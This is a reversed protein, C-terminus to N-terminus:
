YTLSLGFGLQKNNYTPMIVGSISEKNKFVHRRIWPQLKYALKTSLIGVGAGAIVDSLWHKNNSMRLFGTAGAVTYGIIGYAISVDRYEQFLFEAGMFATATHGSPFANLASRDPRERKTLTKGTSVMTQLLVVATGLIITRDKFNHKGKIGIANMSYVAAFSLYQLYNDVQTNDTFRNNLREQIDFDFDRLKNSGLTMMGYGIMASPIVYSKFKTNPIDDPITDTTSSCYIPSTICLLLVAIYIKM